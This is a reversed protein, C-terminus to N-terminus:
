THEESRAVDNHTVEDSQPVIRRFWLLAGGSVTAAAVIISVFLLWPPLAYIWTVRSPELATRRRGTCRERARRNQLVLRPAARVCARRSERTHHLPLRRGEWPQHTPEIGVVRERNQRRLWTTLCPEAFAGNPLEFRGTAELDSEWRHPDGNDSRARDATKEGSRERTGAHRDRDNRAPFM